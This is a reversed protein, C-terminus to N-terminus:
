SIVSYHHTSLLESSTLAEMIHKHSIHVMAHGQFLCTHNLLNSANTISSPVISIKKHRTKNMEIKVSKQCIYATPNLIFYKM